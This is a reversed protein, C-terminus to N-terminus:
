YKETAVRVETTVTPFSRFPISDEGFIKVLLRLVLTWMTSLRCYFDFQAMDRINMVTRCSRSAASDVFNRTFM